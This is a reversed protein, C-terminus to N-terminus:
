KRRANYDEDVSNKWFENLVSNKRLHSIAMGMVEYSLKTGKADAVYNSAFEEAIGFKQATSIADINAGLFLFNWNYKEKQYDIMEKIKKDSYEKSSNEYGDTTIIFLVNEAREDEKAYKQTNVMYNISYGIADLLATCGKVYYDKSTMDQIEKIDIRKHLMEIEHDFLVTTVNAEGNEIRQKNLMSNFGGITDSELGSMSGSRDLIFVIETLNRKM